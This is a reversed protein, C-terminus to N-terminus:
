EKLPWSCPVRLAIEIEIANVKESYPFPTLYPFPTVGLIGTELSQPSRLTRHNQGPVTGACHPNVGLVKRYMAEAEPVQGSRLQNKALKLIADLEIPHM